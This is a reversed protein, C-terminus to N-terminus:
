GKVNVASKVSSRPHVVRDEGEGVTSPSEGIWANADTLLMVKEGKRTLEIVRQQLEEMRKENRRAFPSTSPVFYAGFVYVGCFKVCCTTWEQRYGTRPM